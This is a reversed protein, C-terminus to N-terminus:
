SSMRVLGARRSAYCTSSRWYRCAAHSASTHQERLTDQTHQAQASTYLQSESLVDLLAAADTAQCVIARCLVRLLMGELSHYVRWFSLIQLVSVRGTRFERVRGFRKEIGRLM